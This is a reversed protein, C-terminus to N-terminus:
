GCYHSINDQMIKLMQFAHGVNSFNTCLEAITMAMAAESAKVGRL